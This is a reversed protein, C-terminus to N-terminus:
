QHPTAQREQEADFGGFADATDPVWPGPPPVQGIVSPFALYFGRRACAPLFDLLLGPVDGVVLPGDADADSLYPRAAEDDASQAGVRESLREARLPARGAGVLWMDRVHDVDAPVVETVVAEQRQAAEGADADGAKGAVALSGEDGAPEALECGRWGRLEHKKVTFVATVLLGPVVACPAVAAVLEGVGEVYEFVLVGLHAAAETRDCGQAPLPVGPVGVPRGVIQREQDGDNVFALGGEVEGM